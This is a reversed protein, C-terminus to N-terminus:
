NAYSGTINLQYFAKNSASIYGLLFSSEQYKLICTCTVINAKFCEKFPIKTLYKEQNEM